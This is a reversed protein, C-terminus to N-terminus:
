HNTNDADPKGKSKQQGTIFRYTNTFTPMMGVLGFCVMALGIFLQKPTSWDFLEGYAIATGFILVLLGNFYSVIELYRKM